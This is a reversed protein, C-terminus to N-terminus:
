VAGYELKCERLDDAVHFWFDFADAVSSLAKVFVPVNIISMDQLFPVRSRGHPFRFAEGNPDIEAFDTLIRTIEPLTHDPNFRQHRRLYGSVCEWNDLLRHTLKTNAPEDFLPPLVSALHKLGLEVAHRYNFVLPYILLDIIATPEMVSRAVAAAGRFYGRSYAELDYPGGNRGVCANLSPIPGNRFLSNTRYKTSSEHADM